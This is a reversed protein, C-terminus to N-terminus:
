TSRGSDGAPTIELHRGQNCWFHCRNRGLDKSLYLMADAKRFLEFPDAGDEPFTVGGFSMTVLLPIKQGGSEVEERFETRLLRLVVEMAAEQSTAPLILAFEEGGIRCVHDIRRLEDKLRRAVMQLIRDGAQHGHQDNIGKFNDLDGIILTLPSEARRARELELTFHKDFFARNNAGTLADTHIIQNVDRQHRWRNTVFRALRSGIKLLTDRGWSGPALVFLLGAERGGAEPVSETDPEWVPVAVAVPQEGLPEGTTLLEAIGPPLEEKQPIWVSHGQDRLKLWGAKGGPTSALVLGPLAPTTSETAHLLIGLRFQPTFDRLLQLINSLITSAEGGQVEGLRLNQAEEMAELFGDVDQLSRDQAETSPSRERASDGGAATGRYLPTLDILEKRGRILVFSGEDQEQGQLSVRVLVGQRLLERVVAGCAAALLNEQRSGLAQRVTRRLQPGVTEVPLDRSLLDTLYRTRNM